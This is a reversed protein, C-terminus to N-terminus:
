NKQKAKQLWTQWIHEKWEDMSKKGSKLLERVFYEKWGLQASFHRINDYSIGDWVGSTESVKPRKRTLAKKHLEYELSSSVGAKLMRAITSQSLGLKKAAEGISDYIHGNLKLSQPKTEEKNLTLNFWIEGYSTCGSKVQASVADASFEPFLLRSMQKISNYQVGDVTCPIGKQKPKLRKKTLNLRGPQNWFLEIIQREIEYGEEPQVYHLVKWRHQSRSYSSLRKKLRENHQRSIQYHEQQRKYGNKTYGIYWTGDPFSVQYVVACKPLPSM